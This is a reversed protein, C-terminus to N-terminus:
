PWMANRFATVEPSDATIRSVLWRSFRETVSGPPATGSNVGLSRLVAVAGQLAGQGAVTPAAAEAITVTIAAGLGVAGLAAAAYVLTQLIDSFGPGHPIAEDGGLGLPDILRLPDGLAFAYRNLTQPQYVNGFLIDRSIFRMAGPHYARACMHLLGMGLDVVGHQGHFLFPDRTAGQRAVVSGYPAYAFRDTVAGTGDVLALTSGAEDFVYTQYQNRDTLRSILGIGHIYYVRGSGDENEAVLTHDLSSEMEEHADTQPMPLSAFLDPQLPGLTQPRIPLALLPRAVSIVPALPSIRLPGAISSVFESGAVAHMPDAQEVFPARYRRVDKVFHRSADGQHVGTNLGDADYELRAEGVSTLERRVSYQLAGDVGPIRTMNGEADYSVEVGNLTLLRDGAYTMSVEPQKQSPAIPLLETVKQPIGLEDFDTRRSALVEGSPNAIAVFGTVRNADEVTQHVVVGNPYATNKLRGGPWYSYSTKRGHFDVVTQLRHRGDYTYLVPTLLDPYLLREIRNMPTYSYGVTKQRLRDTRSTLRNIEDFEREIQPVDNRTTQRRNGNHDLVHAIVDGGPLTTSIFRGAADYAYRLINGRTDTFTELLGRSNYTRSETVGGPATMAVLAMTKDYSYVSVAAGDGCPTVTVELLHKLPNYKYSYTTAPLSGGDSSSEVVRRPRGSSDHSVVVSKWKEPKSDSGVHGVRRETLRGEADTATMTCVGSPDIESMLTQVGISNANQVASFMTNWTRGATNTLAVVRNRADFVAIETQPVDKDPVALPLTRMVRLVRSGTDPDTLADYAFQTTGPTNSQWAIDTLSIPRELADVTMSQVYPEHANGLIPFVISTGHISQRLTTVRGNPDTRTALRGLADYTFRWVVVPNAASLTLSSILNEATYDFRTQTSTPSGPSRIIAAVFNNPNYVYQTIRGLADTVTSVNNCEDYTFMEVSADALPQDYHQTKRKSLLGTLADYEYTTIRTVTGDANAITQSSLQGTADDYTCTTKEGLANTVRQLQGRPTYEMRKVNANSVAAGNGNALYVSESEILGRIAGAKYTYVTKMGLADTTSSLSNDGAYAFKTLNGLRDPSSELNNHADYGFVLTGVGSELTLTAINCNDDYTAAITNGSKGLDAMSGEYTVESLVNGNADYTMSVSHVNGNNLTHLISITDESETFSTYVVHPRMYPQVTAITTPHGDAVTGSSWAIISSGTGSAMQNGDRQLTVRQQNDYENYVLVEGTEHCAQKLLSQPWYTFTRSKGKANTVRTLDGHTYDFQIKRGTNDAVQELRGADAGSTFYTFSLYRGSGEDTVRQLQTGVYALTAGNGVRSVIRVLRGGSDFEYRTQDRLILTYTQDSNRQLGSGDQRGRKPLLGVADRWNYTAIAGHGWVVSVFPSDAPQNGPIYLYTRYTHSWRRGLPKDSAIPDNAAPLAARTSYYTIFALPVIGVVSIEINSYLYAGTAMDIPDGAKMGSVTGPDPKQPVVTLGIKPYVFSTESSARSLTGGAFARISLIYTAGNVFSSYDLTDTILAANAWKRRVVTGKSNTLTLLYFQVDGVATWAVTFTQSTEDWQLKPAPPLIAAHPASAPGSSDGSVAQVSFSCDVDDPLDMPIEVSTTAVSVPTPQAGQLPVRTQALVYGQAQDCPQWTVKMPGDAQPCSFVPAVTGLDIPVFEIPQCWAGVPRARVRALYKHGPLCGNVNLPQLADASVLERLVPTGDSGFIQIEHSTAGPVADWTLQVFAERGPAPTTFTLDSPIFPSPDANSMAGSTASNGLAWHLVPVAGVADARRRILVAAFHEDLTGNWLAFESIEGVMGKGVNARGLALLATTSFADGSTRRFGNPNQLLVVGDLMIQVAVSLRGAAALTFLVHHWQGDNIARGITIPPADRYALTLNEPNSFRIDPLADARPAVSLITAAANRDTTRVWLALSCAQTPFADPANGTFTHTVSTNDNLQLVLAAAGSATAYSLRPKPADM